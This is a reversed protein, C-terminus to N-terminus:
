RSMCSKMVLERANNDLKAGSVVFTEIILLEIAAKLGSLEAIDALEWMKQCHEIIGVRAERESVRRTDKLERSQFADYSHAGRSNQVRVNHIIKQM